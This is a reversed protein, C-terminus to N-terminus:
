RLATTRFARNCAHIYGLLSGRVEVLELRGGFREVLYNAARILTTERGLAWLGVAALAVIVILSIAAKRM